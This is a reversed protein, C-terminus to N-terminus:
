NAAISKGPFVFFTAASVERLKLSRHAFHPAFELLLQYCFKRQVNFNPVANCPNRCFLLPDVIRSPRRAGAKHTQQV